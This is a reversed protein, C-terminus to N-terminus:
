NSKTYYALLSQGLTPATTMTVTQGALTYDSGNTQVLGDLAIVVGSPALPAGSLGFAQNSGDVAGSPAEQITTVGLFRSFLRGL